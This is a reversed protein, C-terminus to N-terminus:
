VLEVLVRVSVQAPAALVRVSVQALAVPVRELVLQLLARESVKTPARPLLDAVAVLVAELVPELVVVSVAAPSGAGPELVLEAVPAALAVGVTLFEGSATEM